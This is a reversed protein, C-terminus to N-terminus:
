LIPTLVDVNLTAEAIPFVAVVPITVYMGILPSTFTRWGSSITPIDDSCNNTKFMSSNLELILTILSYPLVTPVAYVAPVSTSSFGRAKVILTPTFVSLSILSWLDVYKSGDSTTATPVVEPTPILLVIDIVFGPKADM